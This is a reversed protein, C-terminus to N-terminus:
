LTLFADRWTSIMYSSGTEDIGRLLIDHTGPPVTMESLYPSSQTFKGSVNVNENKRVRRTWPQPDVIVSDTGFLQMQLKAEWQSPVIIEPNTIPGYIRHQIWAPSHGGVNIGIRTGPSEAGSYTNLPDTLPALLGGSSRPVISTVHTNEVDSYFRHDICRFTMIVDLRGVNMLDENVPDIRDPRGVVWRTPGDFQRIRLPMVAGPTKRIREADWTIALQAWAEQCAAYSDTNITLEVTLTRGELRDLGFYQGDERPRPRDGLSVGPKGGPSILTLAYPTTPGMLLGDVEVSRPLLDAM